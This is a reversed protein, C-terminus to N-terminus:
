PSVAADVPRQMGCRTCGGWTDYDHECGAQHAERFYRKQTRTATQKKVGNADREPQASPSGTMSGICTFGSAERPAPAVQGHAAATREDHELADLVFKRKEPRLAAFRDLLTEDIPRHLKRCLKAYKRTQGDRYVAPEQDQGQEQSLVSLLSTLDAKSSAATPNPM